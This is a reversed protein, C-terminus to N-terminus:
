TAETTDLEKRGWLHYDALSRQGHSEGALISSHTAMGEELPDKFGHKKHRRCHCTPEKGSTGGPFGVSTVSTQIFLSVSLENGPEATVRKSSSRPHLHWKRVQLTLFSMVIWELIRVQLIGPVSSGPLSCNIPDCLTLCSQAVSVASLYSVSRFGIEWRTDWSVSERLGSSPQTPWQALIRRGQADAKM